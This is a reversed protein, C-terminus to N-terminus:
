AGQNEFYRQAYSARWAAVDKHARDKGVMQKELSQCAAKADAPLSNFGKSAGGSGGSARSPSTGETKNVPAGDGYKAEVRKELEEFFDDGVLGKLRIVHGMGLVDGVFEEDKEKDKHKALIAVLKPHLPPPATKAPPQEEEAARGTKAADAAKKLDDRMDLLELERVTDQEERATKLQLALENRSAKIREQTDAEQTEQVVKLSAEVAALKSVLAANAAAVQDMQAHLEKNKTRLIPLVKRANDMFDPADLWQDEPGKWKDKPAWGLVKAEAELQVDAEQEDAM